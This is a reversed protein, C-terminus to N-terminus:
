INYYEIKDKLSVLESPEVNKGARHTLIKRTDFVLALLLGVAFLLWLVVHIMYFWNWKVALAVVSLVACVLGVGLSVGAVVANKKYTKDKPNYNPNIVEKSDVELHIIDTTYYLLSDLTRLQRNKGPLQNITKVVDADLLQIDTEANIDKYVGLLKIGLKYFMSKIATAVKKFGRYVKKLYVIKNGAEYSTIFAKIVDANMEEKGSYIITADYDECKEMALTILKHQDVPRDVMFAKVAKNEVYVNRIKTFVASLKSNLAFILDFNAKTEKCAKAITEYAKEIDYEDLLPVIFGFKM